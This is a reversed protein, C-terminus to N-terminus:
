LTICDSLSMEDILIKQLSICSAKFYTSSNESNFFFSSNWFSCVDREREREREREVQRDTSASQNERFSTCTGTEREKERQKCKCFRNPDLDSGFPIWSLINRWNLFKHMRYFTHLTDYLLRHARYFPNETYRLLHICQGTWHASGSPPCVPPGTGKAISSRIGQFEWFLWTLMWRQAMM